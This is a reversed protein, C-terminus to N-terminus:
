PKVIDLKGAPGIGTIKRDYMGEAFPPPTQFAGANTARVRYVFTQSDRTINGYLVIRDERVDIHQPTWTSKDAMGIPLALIGMPRRPAAMPDVTNQSDSTLKLEIVPDIGGPLLDVVAIQSAWNLQTARLRLCVLFEEGVKAKSLVHGTMDTFERIIEVGNSVPAAPAARDFGSENLAFYMPLNSDKSFQVKAANESIAVHPIAGAPLTLSRERGDKGIESIGLKMAAGSAKAYADLAILTYAASLSSVYGSSVTGAIADLMAPPISSLRNPFHRSILYLYQADHTLRDYYIDGTWDKKQDAWHLDHIIRDADAKRQMLQYTSALYAAALDTQWAPAYRKTLEQEVNSLAANPRIGQRTLLYVAYARLRGGSLSGSPTTAFRDLWGNLQDLMGPPIQQGREKAEILLQTAYVTAFEATEPSSTWLGLGGSANQRSQLVSYANALSEKGKVKGFEPRTAIVLGAFGKSVLQETCTYAYSDLYETLAQGWVLPLPSVAADVRRFQPFMDRIVPVQEKSHSMRGLTLQTRFPVVPRVSVSEDVRAGANGRRAAFKLAASGPAANAKFRFEAVGEKKDEVQLEIRTPSTVTLEPGTQAEVQIPGKGGTTNNFVGVSVVFEDGPAVMAPVNPTLIFDGKVETAGGATGIKKPAIAVAMMRLKGNFYDPVAVKLEKGAPGVDILGSWYAVPPKRKKAFPNLFRAYGGDGDGGPAALALFRRYEPLMLDLIQSTQVELMRKQFFFGLPDPNRYRAVQLIGEDVAIVVARSPESARLHINMATGPKVQAPATLTLQQTRATLNASFPAVGCSLPSLFIEPSSPDRLFQVSVYANGEFDQPLTIHQVTSTTSTKFWQHQIVRDREIAILGAGTYPARISVEIREGGSYSPKDLRVQLEANRELSRSINAEGAVSYDLQNLEAGAENRLILVFDGPEETPLAFSTGGAAIRVSKTDRVIEKLKSEYKYTKNFQHTLVSVYKRQVWELKLNSAAVSALQQNVAIWHAGRATSRRIYSLDGDPKVGVLYAAGSVIASGHDAVNRGGEAEYARGLVSLRYARGAFRQLDLRLEANGKDDTHTAALNQHYPESLGEGIQFRYETYKSFKPLVPSLSMEGDIRRNGAPEGFLHAVAIKAKVEAPTIWANAARDTLTLRVKMRDPEFEQVKFSTSGLLEPHKPDKVIYASAQYIGTPSAPQSTYTMEDFASASLKLPTRQVAIGRSDTIEVNIPLGALSASWDATRTILGLHATEGPRYIGRDSFLFTSLQQPSDANLVGGTDFRSFDLDRNGRNLPLFSYDDDKEVLIMTPERERRLEGPPKPLHARGAGDTGSTQVPMGNQGLMQVRANAIPEGTRFSQVFADRSGDKAQKIIIGLDTVLILRHDNMRERPADIGPDEMEEMDEADEMNETNGDNEVSKSGSPERAPRLHILFLGRKTQAKNQLYPALDISDYSPKGPQQASYDRVSRFREVMKSELDQYVRPKSFSWMKPALHQLQNPLLRGIEVEVRKVDRALFGVKKDGSLSLLAGEGLFSLAPQYPEVQFVESYPKGAFYGGIGQVGDKIYVFVYRGVPALFRFGHATNGGESSPVYTLSLKGCKGLIDKGVEEPSSWRYPDPQEKPQNPHRVPLLYALVNGTLAKDTVPSSSRLLLIQEPEYRANDVITMRANSIHLSSRGPIHVVSELKAATDNGGRAAHVGKDIHLTMTTDDRPIALSASHIHAALNFKDYVVTFLRSDPRLGLYEADKAPTLSVLREFAKTDVPHSFTVTAVIKKLSPDVPDQYFSNERIHASFPASSFNVTYDKVSVGQNFFGKPAFKVKFATDIPWDDKPTFTLECDSVWFWAGPVEPSFTLGKLIQKGVQKLPAVPEYFSIRVPYIRKIGKEDYTTLDPPRVTYEAYRPTPLSWYWIGGVVLIIIGITVGIARRPDSNLCRWGRCIQRGIWPMWEPARWGWQGVVRPLFRFFASLLRWVFWPKM